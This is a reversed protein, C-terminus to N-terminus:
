SANAVRLRERAIKGAEEFTTVPKVAAPASGGKIPSGPQQQARTVFAQQAEAAIQQFRKLGAEVWSGDGEYDLGLQMITNRQEATFQVKHKSELREFDSRITQEEQSEAQATEWAQIRQELPAMRQQTQEEVLKAIDASALDGEEVPPADDAILGAKKAADTLWTQYANDDQSVQQYWALIQAQEEPKFQERFPGIHEEYGGWTQELKAAESLRGNVHREADKLYNTVVERGDEPVNELYSDFVGPTGVPEGQGGGGGGNSEMLFRLGRSGGLHQVCVSMFYM